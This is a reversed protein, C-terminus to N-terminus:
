PAPASANVRTQPRAPNHWSFQMTPDGLLLWTRRVDQDTTGAKARLLADGLRLEGRALQEYLQRAMEQQSGPDTMGTSAWVAAAGGNPALLMAEGLSDAFVDHSYGNLCTLLVMLPLKDGNTLADGDSAALLGAGTWVRASGHGVFNVLRPGANMAALFAARTEADSSASRNIVTVPQGPPLLAQDAASVAEFGHDAVFLASRAPDSTAADYSIIKSVVANAEEATRVPLRGISMEPLSDHNFDVLWDDSATELLATDILKTPVFDAAGFGLYNRPDWSSDGVLLVYGPARQWNTTTWELFDRVAAPQHEGFSFEDYIDEVDVVEVM